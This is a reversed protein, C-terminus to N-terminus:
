MALFKDYSVFLMIDNLSVCAFSFLEHLLFGNVIRISCINLHEKFVVYSILILMIKLSVGLETTIM